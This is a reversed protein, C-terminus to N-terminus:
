QGRLRGQKRWEWQQFRLPHSICVLIFPIKQIFEFQWPSHDFIFIGTGDRVSGSLVEAELLMQGHSKTTEIHVQIVKKEKRWNMLFQVNSM